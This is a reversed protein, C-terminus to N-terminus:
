EDATCALSRKLFADRARDSGLDGACDPCLWLHKRRPTGEGRRPLAFEKGYWLWEWKASADIGCKM